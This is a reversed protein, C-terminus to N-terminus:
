GSMPKTLVQSKVQNNSLKQEGLFTFKPEGILKQLLSGLTFFGSGQKPISNQKERLGCLHHTM